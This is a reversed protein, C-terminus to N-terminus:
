GPFVLVQKPTVTKVKAGFLTSFLSAHETHIPIIAKPNIENVVEMLELGSAHGSSHSHIVELGFKLMWQRTREESIEGEEDSPESM